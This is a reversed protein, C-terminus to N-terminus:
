TYVYVHMCICFIAVILWVIAYMGNPPTPQHQWLRRHWATCPNDVCCFTNGYMYLPMRCSRWCCGCSGVVFDAIHPPCASTLSHSAGQAVPTSAGAMEVLTLANLTAKPTHVNGYLTTLGLIDLEPSNFAALIAMADDTRTLMWCHSAGRVCSRQNHQAISYLQLRM